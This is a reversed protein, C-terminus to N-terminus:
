SLGALNFGVEVLIGQGTIFRAEDTCLRAPVAGIDEPAALHALRSQFLNVGRESGLLEHIEGMGEARRRGVPFAESFHFDTREVGYLLGSKVDIFEAMHPLPARVDLRGCVQVVYLGPFAAVAANGLMGEDGHSGVPRLFPRIVCGHLIVVTFPDGV